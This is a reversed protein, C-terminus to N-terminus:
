THSPEPPRTEFYRRSHPAARLDQGTNRVALMEAHQKAHYRDLLDAPTYPQMEGSANM